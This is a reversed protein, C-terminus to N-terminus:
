RSSSRPSRLISRNPRRRAASSPSPSARRSSRASTRRASALSAASTPPRSAWANTGTDIAPSGPLLPITQTTGGYSGLTGLLPAIPAAATGIRNGGISNSLGTSGDGIGILNNVSTPDIAANIDPGVGGSGSLTNGAILTNKAILTGGSGGDILIGGGNTASNGSITVNTLTLGGEDVIAGGVSAAMNASFTSNTIAASGCSCVFIAGGANLFGDAPRVTKSASSPRPARTPAPPVGSNGVFTSDTM